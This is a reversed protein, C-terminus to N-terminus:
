QRLLSNMRVYLFSVLAKGFSCVKVPSSSPTTLFKLVVLSVLFITQAKQGKTEKM